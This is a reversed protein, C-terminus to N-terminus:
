IHNFHLLFTVEYHKNLISHQMKSGCLECQAMKVPPRIKTSFCTKRYNLFPRKYEMKEGHVKRMHFALGAETSFSWNCKVCKHGDKVHHRQLNVFRLWWTLTIKVIIKSESTKNETENAIICSVKIHDLLNPM